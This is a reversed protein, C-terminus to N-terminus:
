NLSTYIAAGAAMQSINQLRNAASRWASNPIFLIDDARLAVDPAHGRLIKSVNVEVEERGHETKRVLKAKGAKATPLLGGGLAVLQAITLEGADQMVYGGSRTVDGVLYAIGARPVVVTDGPRLRLEGSAAEGPHLWVVEQAGDAHRIAIQPSAADTLGGAEAILQRLTHPGLEAYVGPKHVEGDIYVGETAYERVLLSVQPHEVFRGKELSAAIEREAEEV